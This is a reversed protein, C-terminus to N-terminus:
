SRCRSTRRRIPRRANGPKRATTTVPACENATRAEGAGRRPVVRLAEASRSPRDGIAHLKGAPPRPRRDLPCSIATQRDPPMFWRGNGRMWTSRAYSYARAQARVGVLRPGHEDSNSSVCFGEGPNQERAPRTRIAKSPRRPGFM